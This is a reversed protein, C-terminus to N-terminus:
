REDINKGCEKVADWLLDLPYKDYVTLTGEPTNEDWDGYKDILKKWDESSTRNPISGQNLYKCFTISVGEDEIGTLYPCPITYYEGDEYKDPIYCYQGPPIVNNDM